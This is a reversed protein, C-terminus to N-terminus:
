VEYLSQAMALVISNSNLQFRESDFRNKFICVDTNKNNFTRTCDAINRYMRYMRYM